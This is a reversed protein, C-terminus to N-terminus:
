QVVWDVLVLTLFTSSVKLVSGLLFYVCCHASHTHIYHAPALTAFIESASILNFNFVPLFMAVNQRKLFGVRCRKLTSLIQGM